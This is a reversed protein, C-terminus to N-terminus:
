GEVFSATGQLGAEAVVAAGQAGECSPASRNRDTLRRRRTPDIEANKARASTPTM